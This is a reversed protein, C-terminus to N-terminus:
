VELILVRERCSARGIQFRHVLKLFSDFRREFRVYCRYYVDWNIRFFVDVGKYCGASSELVHNCSRLPFNNAVVTWFSDHCITDARTSFLGPTRKLTVLRKLARLKLMSLMVTPDVSCCSRDLIVM